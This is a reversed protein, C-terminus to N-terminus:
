NHGHSRGNHPTPAYPFVKNYGIDNRTVKDVDTLGVVTPPSTRLDSVLAIVGIDVVDDGFRRGNPWGGAVQQGTLSSTLTDGGFVSLRSFGADDPAAGPNVGGALRAAPTSLDVKIVDPIFISQIDTRNTKRDAPLSFADILIGGLQPTLAYKAFLKADLAPTTRGYPDKDKEGVFIENFLPNGQRGVQIWRPSVAPDNNTRLVTVQNRSTTAWVGAVQQDGGLEAIPIRLVIMHVNFGSQSDFPKNGGSFTPDLDFVSQVDAYFGDDRQGAFVAYGGTSQYVTAATYKDLSAASATGEKAPNEGSNGQNYFPTVLGQNNPPVKAGTFLTAARGKSPVKVVSYTQTLNQSADDVENIVGLYSPAFIDANKFNTDFRFQYSITPKGKAMDDGLAVHLQYLVRDDFNYRNPGIGPEEFPYVAVATTLYKQGNETSIFAYVDTTNAAPDFTILPADMHSSARGAAPLLLLAGVAALILNKSKTTM